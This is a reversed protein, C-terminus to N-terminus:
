ALLQAQCCQTDQGIAMRRGTLNQFNQGLGLDCLDKKQCISWSTSDARAVSCVDQFAVIIQAGGRLKGSLKGFGRIQVVIRDLCEM